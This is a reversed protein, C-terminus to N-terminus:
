ITTKCTFEVNEVGKLQRAWRIWEFLVVVFPLRAIGPLAAQLIGCPLHFPFDCAPPFALPFPFIALRFAPGVAGPAIETVKRRVEAALQAVDASQITLPVVHIRHIRHSRQTDTDKHFVKSRRCATMLALSLFALSFDNLSVRKLALPLSIM